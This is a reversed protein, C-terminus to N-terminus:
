CKEEMKSLKHNYYLLKTYFITAIATAVGFFIKMYQQEALKWIILLLFLQNIGAWEKLDRLSREIKM